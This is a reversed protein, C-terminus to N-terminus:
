NKELIRKSIFKTKIEIIALTMIGIGIFPIIVVMVTNGTTWGADFIQIITQIGDASEIILNIKRANSLIDSLSIELNQPQWQPLFDFESEFVIKRNVQLRITGETITDIKYGNWTTINLFLEDTEFDLTEENIQVLPQEYFREVLHVWFYTNNVGNITLEWAIDGDRTVETIITPSKENLVLAKNGFV